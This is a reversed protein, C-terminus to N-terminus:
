RTIRKIHDEVSETIFNGKQYDDRAQQLAADLECERLHNYHKMDMVVFKEKGRVTIILEQNKKLNNEIVSVGRTKLENATITNM